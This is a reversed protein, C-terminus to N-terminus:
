DDFRAVTAGRQLKESQDPLNLDQFGPVAAATYRVVRNEFIATHSLEFKVSGRAYERLAGPSTTCMSAILRTGAARGSSPPAQSAM